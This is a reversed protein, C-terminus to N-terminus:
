EDDEEILMYELRLHVDADEQLRRVLEQLATYKDIDSFKELKKAAYNYIDEIVEIM